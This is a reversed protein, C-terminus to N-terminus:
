LYPFLREVHMPLAIFMQGEGFGATTPVKHMPGGRKEFPLCLAYTNVSQQLKMEVPMLSVKCALVCQGHVIIWCEEHIGSDYLMQSENGQCENHQCQM